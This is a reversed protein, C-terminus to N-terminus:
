TRSSQTKRQRPTGRRGRHRNGVDRLSVTERGILAEHQTFLFHGVDTEGGEMDEIAFFKAAIHLHGVNNAAASAATASTATTAGPTAAPTAAATTAAAAADTPSPAADASRRRFSRRLRSGCRKATSKTGYIPGDFRKQHHCGTPQRMQANQQGEYPGFAPAFAFCTRRARDGALRATAPPAHRHLGRPLEPMHHRSEGYPPETESM